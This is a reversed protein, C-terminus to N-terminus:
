DDCAAEEGVVTPGAQETAERPLQTSARTILAVCTPTWGTIRCQDAHHHDLRTV